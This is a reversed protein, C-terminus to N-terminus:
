AIKDRQAQEYAQKRRLMAIYIVAPITVRYAPGAIDITAWALTIAWGIPGAWLSLAKTLTSNAAFSLGKNFLFKWVTNAVIVSLQYSQFGGLQFITMAAMNAYPILSLRQQTLRIQFSDIGCQEQQEPSMRDYAKQLFHLLIRAEISEDTDFSCYDVDLKDAVDRVIESYLVGHGRWANAITNGGFWQIEEKIAEVYKSHQPYYKKYVARPTLYETSQEKILNVLDELESDTCQDLFILSKDFM